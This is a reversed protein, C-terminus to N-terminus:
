DSPYQGERLVIDDALRRWVAASALMGLQTSPLDAAAAARACEEALHVYIDKSKM